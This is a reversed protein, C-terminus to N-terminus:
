SLKEILFIRVFSDLGHSQMLKQTSEFVDYPTIWVSKQFVKYGLNKLVSRLIWRKQQDKKPIDFIIMIWKGDDRKKREKLDMKIGTDLAKQVGGKTLLIGKKGEVNKALIYNKKKLFHLLQIFQRHNKIKQWKTFVPDRNYKPLIRAGQRVVPFVDGYKEIFLYMDWLFQDSIAIKM